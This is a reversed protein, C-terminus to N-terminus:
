PNQGQVIQGPGNQKHEADDNGQLVRRNRNGQEALERHVPSSRAKIQRSYVM